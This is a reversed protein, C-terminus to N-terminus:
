LPPPVKPHRDGMELEMAKVAAEVDLVHKAGDEPKGFKELTGGPPMQFGAVDVTLVIGYL